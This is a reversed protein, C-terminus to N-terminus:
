SLELNPMVKGAISFKQCDILWIFHLLIVFRYWMEMTPIIRELVNQLMATRIHANVEWCGM